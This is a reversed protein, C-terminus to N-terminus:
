PTKGKSLEWRHAKHDEGVSYAYQGDASFAVSWIPGNHYTFRSQYEAVDMNWLLMRKDSGGSLFRRSEAAPAFALSWIPGEHGVFTRIKRRNDKDLEWLIISGDYDASLAHKGDASFAVATIFNKHDTFTHVPDGSALDWLILRNDRGGSLGYDGDPSIAVAMVKGTHRNLQKLEKGSNLDWLRVSRDESGTLARNGVRSFAICSIDMSHGYSLRPLEKGAPDWLALAPVPKSVKGPMPIDKRTGFLVRGDPAVALATLDWNPLPESSEAKLMAINWTRLYTTWGAALFRGDRSIAARLL